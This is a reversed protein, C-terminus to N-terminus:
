SLERNLQKKARFWIKRTAEVSIGLDEAIEPYERLQGFRQEVVYRQQPPLKQVAEFVLDEDESRQFVKSPTPSRDCVLKSLSLLAAASQEREISRKAATAQFRQQDIVTNVVVTRLWARLEKESTGRFSHISQSAELVTQQVIDSPNVRKRTRTSLESDAVALLYSHLRSVIEGLATSDGDRTDAILQDWENNM